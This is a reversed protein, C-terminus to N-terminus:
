GSKKLVRNKQSEIGRFSTEREGIELTPEWTSRGGPGVRSRSINEGTDTPKEPRSEHEGFPDTDVDAMKENM